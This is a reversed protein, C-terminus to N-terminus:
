PMFTQQLFTVYDCSLQQNLLHNSILNVLSQSRGELCASFFVTDSIVLRALELKIQPETLFKHVLACKKVYIPQGQKHILSRLEGATISPTGPLLEDSPCDNLKIKKGFGQSIGKKELLPKYVLEGRRQKVNCPSGPILFYTDERQKASFLSLDLYNDDLGHLIISTDESWFYRAEWKILEPEGRPLLGVDLAPKEELSFNWVLRRTM